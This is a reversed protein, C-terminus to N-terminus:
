PTSVKEVVQPRPIDVTKGNQPIVETAISIGEKKEYFKSDVIIKEKLKKEAEELKMRMFAEHRAMEEPTLQVIAAPNKVQMNIMGIQVWM